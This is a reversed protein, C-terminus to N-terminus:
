MSLLPLWIKMIEDHNTYMDLFEITDYIIELQHESWTYKLNDKLEQEFFNEFEENTFLDFDKVNEYGLRTKIGKLKALKVVEKGLNENHYPYDKIALIANKDVFIIHLIKPISGTALILEDYPIEKNNIIVIKKEKIDVEKLVSKM